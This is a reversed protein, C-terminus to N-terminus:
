TDAWIVTSAAPFVDSQANRWAARGQPLVISSQSGRGLARETNCTTRGGARSARFATLFGKCSDAFARNEKFFVCHTMGSLTHAEKNTGSRIKRDDDSGAIM